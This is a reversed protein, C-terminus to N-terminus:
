SFMVQEGRPSLCVENKHFSLTQDKLVLWRKSWLFSRIGEEEKVTVMGQRIPTAASTSTSLRHMGAPVMNNPLSSFSGNSSHVIKPGSGYGPSHIPISSTSPNSRQFSPAYNTSSFMQSRTSHHGDRPDPYPSGGNSFSAGNGYLSSSSPQRQQHTPPGPPAPARRSPTLNASDQRSDQRSHM